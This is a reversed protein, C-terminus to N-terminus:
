EGMLSSFFLRTIARALSPTVRQSAALFGLDANFVIDYTTVEGPKVEVEGSIFAGLEEDLKLRWM